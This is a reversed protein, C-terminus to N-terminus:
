TEPAIVAGFVISGNCLGDVETPVYIRWYTSKVAENYSEEKRYDLSFNKIVSNSTLNTYKENFELLNLEGSNGASLNYKENEVPIEGRVSCSMALNDGEDMSYGRLSLNVIVNGYNTVNIIIESSVSSASNIGYNITSNVGISLLQNINTLDSSNVSISLNDEVELQCKWEGPNAYYQINFNCIVQKNGLPGAYSSNFYCSNNTYHTNNDDIDLYNSYTNDFFRAHVNYLSSNDAENIIGTCSVLTNTATILDIENIPDTISDDITISLIEPPSNLTLNTVIDYGAGTVVVSSNTSIYNDGQFLVGIIITDGIYCPSNLLECDIMYVNNVGSNGSQGILDTLNDSLNGQKWLVVSRENATTGDLANNVYGVIYHAGTINPIFFIFFILFIIKIIRM